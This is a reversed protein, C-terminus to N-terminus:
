GRFAYTPLGIVQSAVSFLDGSYFSDQIEVESLGVSATTIYLSTRDAGGFTCSTPRQVPMTIRQIERGDSDFRIICWGNWMAVWLCGEQDITLGDPEFPESSLDIFIRRNAIRGSGLDFDYAYITKLFSDTL